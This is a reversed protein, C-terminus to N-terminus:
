PAGGRWCFLSDQVVLTLDANFFLIRLATDYEGTIRVSDGYECQCTDMSGDCM